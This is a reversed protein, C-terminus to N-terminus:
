WCPFINLQIIKQKIKCRNLKHRKTYETHLFGNMEPIPNCNIIHNKVSDFWPNNWFFVLLRM